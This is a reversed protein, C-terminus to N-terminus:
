GASSGPHENGSNLETNELKDWNEQMEVRGSLTKLRQRRAHRLYAMTAARVAAAVESEQTLEKLDAIEEASLDVVTTMSSGKFCEVTPLDIEAAAQGGPVDGPPLIRGVGGIFIM